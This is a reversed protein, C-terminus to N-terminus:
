QFITLPQAWALHVESDSHTWHEPTRTPCWATSIRDWSASACAAAWALFSYPPELIRFYAILKRLNDVVMRMVYSAQCTIKTACAALWPYNLITTHTYRHRWCRSRTKFDTFDSSTSCCTLGASTIGSSASSSSISSTTSGLSAKPLHKMRNKQLLWNPDYFFNPGGKAFAGYSWVVSRTHCGM